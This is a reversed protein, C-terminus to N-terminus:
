GTQRNSFLKAPPWNTPILAFSRGVGIGVTLRQRVQTAAIPVVRVYRNTSFTPAPSVADM